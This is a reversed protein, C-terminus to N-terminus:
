GAYNKSTMHNSVAAASNYDPKSNQETVQSIIVNSVKLPCIVRIYALRLPQTPTFCWSVQTSM